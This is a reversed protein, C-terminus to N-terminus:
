VSKIADELKNKIYKYFFKKVEQDNEKLDYWGMNYLKLIKKLVHHVMEKTIIIKEMYDIRKEINDVSDETLKKPNFNELSTIIRANGDQIEIFALLPMLERYLWKDLLKYYYYKVITKVTSKDVSLNKYQYSIIGNKTPYMVTTSNPKDSTYVLPYSINNDDDKQRLVTNLYDNIITTNYFGVTSM